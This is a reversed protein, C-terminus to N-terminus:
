DVQAISIVIVKMIFYQIINKILPASVYVDTKFVSFIM